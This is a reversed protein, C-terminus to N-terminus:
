KNNIIFKYVCYQLVGLFGLVDRIVFTCYLCYCVTAIFDIFTELDNYITESMLNSLGSRVSRLEM